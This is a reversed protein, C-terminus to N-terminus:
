TKAAAEEHSIPLPPQDTLVRRQAKMFALQGVLRGFYDTIPVEAVIYLLAGSVLAVAVSLAAAVWPLMIGLKAFLWPAGPAVLPHVLYLAYSASGMFIAWRPMIRGASPELAAAGVIVLVSLTTILLSGALEPMEPWQVPAFLGALGAVVFVWSLGKSLALGRQCWYAILMGAFFDLVAGNAYFQLAVPWDSSRYPSILTLLILVPAIIALPRIRFFLAVTFLFYFFMEFNLTWGVGHLPTIAGDLGKAPVFLFSQLYYFTDIQSHLAFNTFSLAIIKLILVLWYLPVIRVVRKVAFIVWGKDAVRLQESSLVMVMGSIVFFLRVGRVGEDYITFHPWLRENVYFTSHVLVVMLAAVFRLLQINLYKRKSKNIANNNELTMM